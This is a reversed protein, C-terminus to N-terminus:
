QMTKAEIVWSFAMVCLFPSRQQFGNLYSFWYCLDNGVTAM